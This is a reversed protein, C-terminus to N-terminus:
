KKSKFRKKIFIFTIIGLVIFPWISVLGLFFWKINDIGNTFSNVFRKWFSKSSSKNIEIKYFHLNLTSFSTKNELYKLRGETSEIDSRVKSLEREVDLIEKVSNTKALLESYREELKKKVKLRAQVDLFQETVDNITINKSDFKDIESSLDTLFKDFKKFPIRVTLNSTIRELSKYEKDVSIYGQYKEIVQNVHNRTKLLDDTEFSVDGEKILKREVTKKFGNKEVSVEMKFDGVSELNGYSHEKESDCSVFLFFVAIIKLLVRM